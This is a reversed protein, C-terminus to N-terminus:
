SSAPHARDHELSGPLPEDPRSRRHAPPVPRSEVIRSNPEDDHHVDGVAAVDETLEGNEQRVAVGVHTPEAPRDRESVGHGHGGTDLRRPPPREADVPSRARGMPDPPPRGPPGTATLGVIRCTAGHEEAVACLGRLADEAVLDVHDLQDGHVVLEEFPELTFQDVQAQLAVRSFADLRGALWLECRAGECLFAVTFRASDSRDRYPRAATVEVPM